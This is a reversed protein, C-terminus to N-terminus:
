FGPHLGIILKLDLKSKLIEFITFCDLGFNLVGDIGIRLLDTQSNDVMNARRWSKNHGNITETHKEFFLANREYNIACMRYALHFNIEALQLNITVERIEM